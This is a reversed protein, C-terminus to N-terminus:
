EESEMEARNGIRIVNWGKCKCKKRWSGSVSSERVGLFECASKETDFVKYEDGKFLVYITKAYERANDTPLSLIKNWMKDAGDAQASTYIDDEGTFIIGTGKIDNKNIYEPM